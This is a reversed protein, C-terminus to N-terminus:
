LGDSEVFDNTPKPTSNPANNGLVWACYHYFIHQQQRQTTTIMKTPMGTILKCATSVAEPNVPLIQNVSVEEWLVLEEVEPIGALHRVEPAM